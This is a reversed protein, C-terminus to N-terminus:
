ITHMIMATNNYRDMDGLSVLKGIYAVHLLMSSVKRPAPPKARRMDIRAMYVFTFGQQHAMACRICFKAPNKGHFHPMGIAMNERCFSPSFLMKHAIICRLCLVVPNRGCFCPLSAASNEGHFNPMSELCMSFAKIPIMGM